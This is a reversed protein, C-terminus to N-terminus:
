GPPFLVSGLVPDSQEPVSFHQSFFRKRDIELLNLCERLAKREEKLLPNCPLKPKPAPSVQAAAASLPQKPIENASTNSKFDTM